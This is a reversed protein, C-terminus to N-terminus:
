RKLNTAIGIMDDATKVSKSNLEYSRQATIMAIMENVIKVNSAELYGQNITGMGDLGAQAVIPDGSAVTQKYLNDGLNTLGAPNIFRALEIRGIETPETSAQTQILVRGDTNVMIATADQPITLPPEMTLGNANVVQGDASIKWSGDRTYALTGDPMLVQFFGDGNIMLDLPNGTEQPSGSEFNKVTAVSKTGGGIQLEAPVTTGQETASTGRLTEYVLDQFEVRTRKFGTTNANAINNAINDLNMQQAHMGSAATYLSKIM